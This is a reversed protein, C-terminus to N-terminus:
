ASIWESAAESISGMGKLSPLLLKLMLIAKTFLIAVRWNYFFAKRCSRGKSELLPATATALFTTLYVNDDPSSWDDSSQAYYVTPLFEVRQKPLRFWYNVALEYGQDFELVEAEGFGTVFVSSSTNFNATTQVGLQARLFLSGLLLLSLLVLRM